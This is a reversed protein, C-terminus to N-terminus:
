ILMLLLVTAISGLLQSYAGVPTAPSLARHIDKLDERANGRRIETMEQPQKLRQPLRNPNLSKLINKSNSNSLYINTSDLM